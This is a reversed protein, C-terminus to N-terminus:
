SAITTGRKALWPEIQQAPLPRSMFYGQAEDCGLARLQQYIEVTEIGEAVVRLGMNHALEITSRVIAADDLDGAMNMVFSRDIKLEQVPLKKLYALSSYGTGFDDISLRVGLRHLSELAALANTPDEMILSETIELCLSAASLNHKRLIQTVLEPLNQHILDHTSINVCACLVIGSRQWQSLQACAHELVWRTIAKIYGTREAFPVFQDPPVMGRTPHQWRVLVEVANCQEDALTVKPQYHLTFEDREVAQRLESMLSLGHEASHEFRSEFLAVGSNAQKAVYMAIDARSMIEGVDVGHEPCAAIGISAGVDVPQGQLVIPVEIATLLRRAVMLAADAGQTPLLLAFEDGGLRAVTDSERQAVRQLRQGVQQLFEDGLQHGLADNVQKFRDLGIVLVSLPLGARMATKIAQRLRDYFLVRNPLRTLSDYYALDAIRAERAIIGHRMRDLASVLAGVEDSGASPLHANLDGEAINGAFRAAAVLPRAISRTIILASLLAIAVATLGFLALSRQAAIQVMGLDKIKLDAAQTQLAVLHDLAALMANLAPMTEALMIHRASDVDMEIEDVTQTFAVAFIDRAQAVSRLATQEAANDTIGQLEALTFDRLKNNRDIEAYVPTRSAQDTLLFLTYLEAAGAQAANQARHALTSARLNNAAIKRSSEAIRDIESTTYVIVAILLALLAAFAIGLKVAIPADRYLKM